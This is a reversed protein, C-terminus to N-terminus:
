RVVVVTTDGCRGHRHARRCCRDRDGDEAVLADLFHEGYSKNQYRAHRGHDRTERAGAELLASCGTAPLLALSLLALTRRM